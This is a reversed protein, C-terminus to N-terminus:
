SSPSGQENIRSFLPSRFFEMILKVRFRVLREEGEGQRSFRINIYEARVAEEHAM